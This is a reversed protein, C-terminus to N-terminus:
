KIVEDCRSCLCDEKTATFKWCRPCKHENAKYVEFVNEDISFTGLVESDQKTNSISSVLFWDSAEVEDLALIDSCNTYISLELTSKITKEKSLADKIESFKEKAALLVEENISNEIFPLETKKYDFIDSCNEKMFDPAYTLLEDMTYTLIPALTSILKKAILAMASQSALRHIDNKDDCYLRDKCVDLYIGSLDVVLFNNLKNLGKSFEYVQFSEQIEDFVSKARSLVWKDLPGMKEVSVIEELDTVNALLFRATNRIKRYLEANQKLINDSIKLDSQYDSMAVWLRLIESGYQKMVKDPAVVNGKSKSMKEGKEDVTFGHTLISKYPAIESSALTTLLSSQFWGRHQDSGELYMDAPFTGADYNGSRLVANQTSGSDFWVDLIDKTKELDDPNLGSNAPLLEAIELDYWADCGKEEFIKATHTLVEEDFIIEDTLKNRFFAIPVGWDRQRSICWDPRGDLM